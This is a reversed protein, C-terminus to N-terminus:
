QKELMSWWSICEGSFGFLHRYCWHRQIQFVQPFILRSSQVSKLAALTRVQVACLAAIYERCTNGLIQILIISSSASPYHIQFGQLSVILITPAMHQLQHALNVRLFFSFVAQFGQFLSLTSYSVLFIFPGHRAVYGSTWWVRKILVTESAHKINIM